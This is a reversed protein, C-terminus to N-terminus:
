RAARVPHPSAANCQELLDPTVLIVVPQDFGDPPRQGVSLKRVARDFAADIEARGTSGLPAARTVDGTSGLWVSMAIRYAGLRIQDDACLAQKLGAQIRGYYDRAAGSPEVSRDQPAFAAPDPVLLVGDGAMYEPVLGTGGLLLRLAEAPTFMGKVVSSRRDGALRTEYIVQWGSAVSYTELASALPQAPLDFAIPANSQFWAPRQEASVGSMMQGGIV